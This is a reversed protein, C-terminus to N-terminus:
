KIEGFGVAYLYVIQELKCVTIDAMNNDRITSYQAFVQLVTKHFSIQFQLRKLINKGGEFLM